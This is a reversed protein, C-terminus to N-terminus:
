NYRNNFRALSSSKKSPKKLKNVKCTLNFDLQGRCQDAAQMVDKHSQYIQNFEIM